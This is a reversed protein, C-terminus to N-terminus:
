QEPEADRSRAAKLDHNKSTVLMDLEDAARCKTKWESVRGGPVPAQLVAPRDLPSILCWAAGDTDAPTLALLAQRWAVATPFPGTQEAQHLAIAAVQCLFAHWPHRQHARLAPFDRVEDCAMAVFLEPLSAKVRHGDAVRRYTILPEDLLSYLLGDSAPNPPETM